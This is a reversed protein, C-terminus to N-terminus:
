FDIPVLEPLKLEAGVSILDPDKIDNFRIIYKVCDKDGYTKKALRTINEGKGLIHSGQQGVIMYKDGTQIPMIPKLPKISEKGPAPSAQSKQLEKKATQPAKSATSSKQITPTSGPASTKTLDGFNTKATFFGLAFFVVAAIATSIICTLKSSKHSYETPEDISNDEEEEETAEEETECSAEESIEEAPEEAPEPANDDGTEKPNNDADAPEEEIIGNERTPEYPEPAANDSGVKELLSIDTGENIVVSQLHVFPKNVAEKVYTDPTFTIKSHGNIEIRKGSNVDISERPSVDIVKFTGFGKIKVIRDSELGKTITQFFVRTFQEINERADPSIAQIADILNSLNKREM